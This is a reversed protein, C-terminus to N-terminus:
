TTALDHGDEGLHVTRLDAIVAALPQCAAVINDPKLDRHVYCAQHMHGLGKLICFADHKAQEEAPKHALYQRLSMEHWHLFLQVNFKCLHHWFPLCHWPAQSAEPSSNRQGCWFGSGDPEIAGHSYSCGGWRLEDEVNVCFAGCKMRTNLSNYDLTCWCMYKLYLIHLRTYLNGVNECEWVGKYIQKCMNVCTRENEIIKMYIYINWM